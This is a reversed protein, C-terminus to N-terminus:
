FELEVFVRTMRFQYQMEYIAMAPEANPNFCGKCNWLQLGLMPEESSASSSKGNGDDDLDRKRIRPMRGGFVEKGKSVVTEQIKKLTKSIMEATVEGKLDISAILRRPMIKYRFEKKEFSEFEKMKGKDFEVNSGRQTGGTVSNLLGISNVGVEYDPEDV